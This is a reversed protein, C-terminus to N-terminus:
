YRDRGYGGGGGRGGGGGGGRKDERPKAESVKLARGDIEKGNVGEIAKLAEEDNDMEVFGFGRSRDTFKDKIIRASSVSGFPSFLQNLDDDTTSFPLNGVYINKAM